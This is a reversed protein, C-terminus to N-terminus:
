STRREMEVVPELREIAPAAQAAHSGSGPGLM